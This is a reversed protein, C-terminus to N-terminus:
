VGGIDLFQREWHKQGPGRYMKPNGIPISTLKTIDVKGKRSGLDVTGDYHICARQMKAYVPRLDMDARFRVFHRQGVTLPGFTELVRLPAQEGNATKMLDRIAHHATEEELIEVGGFWMKPKTHMQMKPIKSTDPDTTKLFFIWQLRM